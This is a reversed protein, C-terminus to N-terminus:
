PTEGARAAAKGITTELWTIYPGPSLHQTLRLLRYAEPLASSWNKSALTKELAVRASAYDTEVQSSLTSARATVRVTDHESGARSYCSAARRLFLVARVGDAPDYPYREIYLRAYREFRRARAYANPGSECSYSASFLAPHARLVHDREDEVRSALVYAASLTSVALGAVLVRVARKDLAVAIRM